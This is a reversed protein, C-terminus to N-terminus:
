AENPKEEADAAEVVTDNAQVVTTEAPAFQEASDLETTTPAPEDLIKKEEFPRDGILEEVDSKHLVERSLLAKAVKEV